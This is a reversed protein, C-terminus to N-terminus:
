LTYYLLIMAAKYKGENNLQHDNSHKIADTDEYLGYFRKLDSLHDNM